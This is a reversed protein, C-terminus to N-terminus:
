ATGSATTPKRGVLTISALSFADTKQYDYDVESKIVLDTFGANRATALYEEKELAGAVCGAWLEMNRRIDPPIQGRAVVDSVCFRGGPRLVRFIEGFVPKKDPALNIVCNSVV